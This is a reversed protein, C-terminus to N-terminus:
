NDTEHGNEGDQKFSDIIRSIHASRELSEDAVFRIEPVKRLKMRHGIERRIFGGAVKNLAKVSSATAEAGDIASVYFTAYSLDNTVNVSIISLLRSIRPDKLERLINSMCFQMDATIRDIKYGAM